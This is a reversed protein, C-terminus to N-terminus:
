PIWFNFHTFCFRTRVCYSRCNSTKRHCIHAKIKEQSEDVFGALDRGRVNATVNLVRKGDERSIQNPGEKIEFDAIDGLLIASNQSISTQQNAHLPIPIRKLNEIDTRIKEPLRVIIEFRKDGEFVEGVQQGGMSIAIIEQVDAISLDYRALLNRNIAITLIPLGTSQEIKVDSAGPIDKLVAEIEEGKQHLVQMDDGFIKVAVDSRVGSILENFRM